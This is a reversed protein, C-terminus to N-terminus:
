ADAVLCLAVHADQRVDHFHDRVALIEEGTHAVHFHLVHQAPRFHFQGIGGAAQHAAFGHQHRAAATGDAALQATLDCGAPGLAQNDHIDVLVAGIGDLLLQRAAVAGLQVQFHVDGRHAIGFFHVGQKLAQVRIHHEVRRGM